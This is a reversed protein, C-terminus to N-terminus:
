FKDEIKRKWKKSLLKKGYFIEYLDSISCFWKDDIRDNSLFLSYSLDNCLWVFLCGKLVWFFM